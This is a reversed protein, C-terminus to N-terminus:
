TVGDTNYKNSMNNQVPDDGAHEKGPRMIPADIETKTYSTDDYVVAKDTDYISENGHQENCIDANAPVGGKVDPDKGVVPNERNVGHEHTKEDNDAKRATTMHQESPHDSRESIMTEHIDDGHAEVM